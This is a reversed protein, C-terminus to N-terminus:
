KDCIIDDYRLLAIISLSAACSSASVSSNVKGNFAVDDIKKPLGLWAKIEQPNLLRRHMKANSSVVTGYGGLLAM